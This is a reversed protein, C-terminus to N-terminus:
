LKHKQRSHVIVVLFCIAPLIPLHCRCRCHEVNTTKEEKKKRTFCKRYAFVFLYLIVLSPPLCADAAYAFNTQGGANTSALM